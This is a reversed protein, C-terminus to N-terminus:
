YRNLTGGDVHTDISDRNPNGGSSGPHKLSYISSSRSMCVTNATSRSNQGTSWYESHFIEVMLKIARINALLAEEQCICHPGDLRERFSSHFSPGFPISLTWINISRHSLVDNQLPTLNSTKIELWTVPVCASKASSHSDDAAGLLVPYSETQGKFFFTPIECFPPKLHQM